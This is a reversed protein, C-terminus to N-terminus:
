ASTPRCINVVNKVKMVCVHVCLCVCVRLCVSM